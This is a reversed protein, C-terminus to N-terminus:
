TGLRPKTEHTFRLPLTWKLLCQCYREALTLCQQQVRWGALLLILTCCNGSVSEARSLRQKRKHLFRVLSAARKPLLSDNANALRLLTMIQAASSSPIPLAAAPEPQQFAPTEAAQAEKATLYLIKEAQEMPVSDFARVSGAYIITLPATSHDTNSSPAAASGEFIPWAAVPPPRGFGNAAPASVGLLPPPAITAMAHVQAHGAAALDGPGSPFMGRSFVLQSARPSRTLKIEVSNPGVALDSGSGRGRGSRPRVVVGTACRM